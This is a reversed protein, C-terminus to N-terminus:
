PNPDREPEEYVVRNQKPNMLRLFGFLKGMRFIGLYRNRLRMGVLHSGVLFECRM